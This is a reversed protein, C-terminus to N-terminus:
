FDYVILFFSVLNDVYSERRRININVESEGM